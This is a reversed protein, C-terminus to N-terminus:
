LCNPLPSCPHPSTPTTPPCTLYLSTAAKPHLTKSPSEPHPRPARTACRCTAHSLVRCQIYQIYQICLGFSFPRPLSVSFCSQSSHCTLMYSVYAHITCCSKVHRSRSPSTILLLALAFPSQSHPTLISLSFQSHSCLTLISLSVSHPVSSPKSVRNM